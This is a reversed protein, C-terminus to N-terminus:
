KWWDDYIVIKYSDSYMHTPEYIIINGNKKMFELLEELTDINVSDIFKLDSAKYVTFKMDFLGKTVVVGYYIHACLNAWM